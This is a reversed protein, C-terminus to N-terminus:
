TIEGGTATNTNTTVGVFVVNSTLINSGNTDALIGIASDIYRPNNQSGGSSLSAGTGQTNNFGAKKGGVIVPGHRTVLHGNAISLFCISSAATSTQLGMGRTWDIIGHLTADAAGVTAVNAEGFCDKTNIVGNNAVVSGDFFCHDLLTIEGFANSVIAVAGTTTFKFGNFNIGKQGSVILAQSATGDIISDESFIKWTDGIVPTTDFRGCVVLIDATNWHVIRYEDNDVDYFLKKQYSGQTVEDAQVATHTNDLIGYITLSVGATIAQILHAEERAGGANIIAYSGVTFGTTSAVNITAGGSASDADVTTTADEAFKGADVIRGQTSAGGKIITAGGAITDTADQTLVGNFTIDFSGTPIKTLLILNEAISGGADTIAVDGGYLGPIVDYAFQRTAFADTGSAHGHALDDTGNVGDVFVAMTGIAEEAFWAAADGDYVYKIKRGVPNHIEVQGDVPSPDLVGVTDFVFQIAKKQQFDVDLASILQANGGSEEWLGSTVVAWKVGSAEGTDATLVEGDAGVAVRIANSGDEVIIDGKTTTPTVQDIIVSHPNSTSALHTDIQDHTNTGVDTLQAGDTHSLPLTAVGAGTEEAVINLWIEWAITINGNSDFLSTQPHPEISM